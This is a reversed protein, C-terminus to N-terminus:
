NNLQDILKNDIERYSDFTTRSAGAAKSKSSIKYYKVSEHLSLTTGIFYLQKHPNKIEEESLDVDILLAGGSGGSFAVTDVAFHNSNNSFIDKFDKWSIEDDYTLTKGNNGKYADASHGASIIKENENYMFFEKPRMYVETEVLAPMITTFPIKEGISLVASDKELELTEMKLNKIITQGSKTTVEWTINKIDKQKLTETDGFCHAATKIVRSAQGPKTSILTGSCYSFQGNRHTIKIRGVSDLYAPSSEDKQKRRDIKQLQSIDTSYTIGKEEFALARTAILLTNLNSSYNKPLQVQPVAYKCEGALASFTSVTLITILAFTQLRM